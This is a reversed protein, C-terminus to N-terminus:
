PVRVLVACLAALLAVVAATLSLWAIRRSVTLTEEMRTIGEEFAKPVAAGNMRAAEELVLATNDRSARLGASLSQQALGKAQEAWTTQNKIAALRRKSSLSCDSTNPLTKNLSNRQEKQSVWQALLPDKPGISLGLERQLRLRIEEIGNNM